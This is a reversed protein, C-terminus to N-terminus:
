GHRYVIFGRTSDAPWVAVTVRDGLAVRIRHRRVKGALNALVERGHDLKLRVKRGRACRDVVAADRIPEAPRRGVTAGLERQRRDRKQV